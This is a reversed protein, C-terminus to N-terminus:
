SLQVVGLLQVQVSDAHPRCQAPVPWGRGMRLVGAFPLCTFPAFNLIKQDLFCNTRAPHACCHHHRVDSSDGDKQYPNVKEEARVVGLFFLVLLPASVLRRPM